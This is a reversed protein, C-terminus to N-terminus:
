RKYEPRFLYVGTVLGAILCILGALFRIMEMALSSPATVMGRISTFMLAFGAMLLILMALTMAFTKM